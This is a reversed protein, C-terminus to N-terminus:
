HGGKLTRVEKFARDGFVTVNQPVPPQDAGYSDPPLLLGYAGEKGRVQTHGADLGADPERFAPRLMPKHSFLETFSALTQRQRTRDRTGRIM